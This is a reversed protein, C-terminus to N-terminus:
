FLKISVAYRGVTGAEGQERNKAEEYIRWGGNLNGDRLLSAILWDQGPPRCPAARMHPPPWVSAPGLDCVRPM